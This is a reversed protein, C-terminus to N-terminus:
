RRWALVAVFALAVVIALIRLVPFAAEREYDMEWQLWKLGVAALICGSIAIAGCLVGIGVARWDM